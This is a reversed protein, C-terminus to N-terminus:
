QGDDEINDLFTNEDFQFDEDDQAQMPQRAPEQQRELEEPQAEGNLERRNAAVIELNQRM